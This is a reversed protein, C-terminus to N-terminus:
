AIAPHRHGLFQATAAQFYDVYRNGDVDTLYPGEASAIVLPYPAYQRSGQVLAGPIVGAARELAAKSGPTRTTYAALIASAAMTSRLRRRRRLGGQPAPQRAPDAGAGHHPAPRRHRARARDRRW